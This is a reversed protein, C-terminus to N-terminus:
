RKLKNLLDARLKLAATESMPRALIGLAEDPIHDWNHEDHEFIYYDFLAKWAQRQAKPLNRLSLMAHLLANTPRGYIAPSNRWWHTILVNLSTLSEVHHWWMSPLFLADGASLEAVLAAKLAKKIKPFREVDPHTIDVISIDQGGPALEMPGVYLNEVQEPPFLTFRRQGVACVALNLPFDFHAAIKARNGIWISTLPNLHPLQASNQESFGPLFRTVETSGVYIGHSNPQNELELLTALVQQLNRPSAQFNFGTMTDNYFVRGQENPELVCTNVPMGQYFNLLYDCAARNSQLGAQVIPWHMAFGKLVVPTERSFVQEDLTNADFQEIVEVSKTPHVM